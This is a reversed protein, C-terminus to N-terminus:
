EILRLFLDKYVFCSSLFISIRRSSEKIRGGIKLLKLRITNIEAKEFEEVGSLLLRLEQMIVYAFCSMLMRFWNASYACCSLRDLSLQNKLNKIYNECQGRQTYYEYGEKASQFTKDTVLFRVNSGHSNHEIKAIITREFDWSESKYQFTIYDRQDSKTLDYNKKQQKEIEKTHKRLVNNSSIGFIYKLKDGECYDYMKPNGFGADGRLTIKVNPFRERIMIIVRSLLSDATQSATVMGPRLLPAILDGTDADFVLLPFYQTQWYYGHFMSCQQNGHTPDDTPDIDITIEKPIGAKMKRDIYIKVFTKMLEFIDKRKIMNDLRSLTSQTALPNDSEPLRNITTKFIPDNRLKNADNNDEYGMAIQYMKQQILNILDHEIKAPDRTDNISDSIQKSLKLSRDIKEILLLGGDSTINGGKFNVSILKKIKRSIKIKKNCVTM